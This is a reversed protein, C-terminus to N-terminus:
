GIVCVLMNFQRGYLHPDDVKDEIGSGSTAQNFDIGAQSQLPVRHDTVFQPIDNNKFTSKQGWFPPELVM